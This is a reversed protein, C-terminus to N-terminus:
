LKERVPLLLILGALLVVVVAVPLWRAPIADLTVWGALARIPAAAQATAPLAAEAPRRLTM